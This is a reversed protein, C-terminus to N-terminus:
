ELGPRRPPVFNWDGLWKFHYPLRLSVTHQTPLVRM